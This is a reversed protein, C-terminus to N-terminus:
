SLIVNKVTSTTSAFIFILKDLATIIFTYLVNNELIRYCNGTLTNKLTETVTDMYIKPSETIQPYVKTSTTQTHKIYIISYM